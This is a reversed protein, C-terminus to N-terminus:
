SNKEDKLEKCMNYCRWAHKVPKQFDVDKQGECFEYIFDLFDQFNSNKDEANGPGYKQFYILAERAFANELYNARRGTKMPPFDELVKSCELSVVHVLEPFHERAVERLECLNVRPEREQKRFRRVEIEAPDIESLSTISSLTLFSVGALAKDLDKLAQNVRVLQNRITSHRDDQYPSCAENCFILIERSHEVRQDPSASGLQDIALELIWRREKLPHYNLNPYRYTFDKEDDFIDDAM